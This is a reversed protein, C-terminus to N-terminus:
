RVGHADVRTNLLKKLAFCFVFYISVNSSIRPLTKCAHSPKSGVCDANGFGALVLYLIHFLDELFTGELISGLLAKTNTGEVM